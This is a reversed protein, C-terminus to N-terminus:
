PITPPPRSADMPVPRADRTPVGGDTPPPPPGADLDPPCVLSTLDARRRALDSLARFQGSFQDFVTTGLIFPSLQAEGGTFGRPTIQLFSSGTEQGHCGACTNMSAHFRADPDVIGPGSFLVFGSNLITGAQFNQGEFQPPVTNGFGGPVVAKIAEANQNVFDAFTQTGNFGLDPTDALPVPRFLGTDPSLDFQRLEWPAGGGLDIENTRFSLL